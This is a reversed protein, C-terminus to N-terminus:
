DPSLWENSDFYIALFDKQDSIIMSLLDTIKISKTTKNVM